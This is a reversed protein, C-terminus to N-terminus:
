QQVAPVLGILSAWSQEEFEGRIRRINTASRELGFISNKPALTTRPTMRHTDPLCNYLNNGFCATPFTTFNGHRLSGAVHGLTTGFETTPPRLKAM